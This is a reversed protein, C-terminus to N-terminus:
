QSLSPQDPKAAVAVAVQLEQNAQTVWSGKRDQKELCVQHDVSGRSDELDQKALLEM